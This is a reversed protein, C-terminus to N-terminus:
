RGNNDFTLNIMYEEAMNPELNVYTIITNNTTTDILKLKGSYLKTSVIRLKLTVADTKNDISIILKCHFSKDSWKYGINFSTITPRSSRSTANPSYYAEAEKYQIIDDSTRTLNVNDLSIHIRNLNILMDGTKACFGCTKKPSILTFSKLNNKDIDYFSNETVDDDFEQLYTNDKYEAKWIYRQDLMSDEKRKLTPMTTDM